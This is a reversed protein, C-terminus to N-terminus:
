RADLRGVREKANVASELFEHFSDVTTVSGLPAGLLRKSKPDQILYYPTAVSQALEQQLALIREINKEGDTHLRAEIFSEELLVSVKASPFVKEENVRCNM